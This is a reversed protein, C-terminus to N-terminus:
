TERPMSVVVQERGRHGDVWIANARLDFGLSVRAEGRTPESDALTKDIFLRLPELIISHNDTRIRAIFDMQLHAGDSRSYRLCKPALSPPGDSPTDAYIFTEVASNSYQAVYRSLKGELAKQGRYFIYQALKGVAFSLISGGSGPVIRATKYQMGCLGAIQIEADENLAALQGDAFDAVLREGSQDAGKLPLFNLEVSSVNRTAVLSDQASASYSIMLLMTGVLLIATRM